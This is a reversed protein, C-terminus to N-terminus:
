ICWASFASTVIWIAAGLLWQNREERTLKWRGSEMGLVIGLGSAMAFGHLSINALLGFLLPLLFPHERRRPWLWAIVFLIPAFLIYSRAVAAYQYALFYTFPLAYRVY